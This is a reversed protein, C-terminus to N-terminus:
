HKSETNTANPKKSRERECCSQELLSLPFEAQVCLTAEESFATEKAIRPNPNFVYMEGCIIFLYFFKAKGKEGGFNKVRDWSIRFLAM